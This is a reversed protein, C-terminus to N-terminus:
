EFEELLPTMAAVDNDGRVLTECHTLIKEADAFSRVWMVPVRFAELRRRQKSPRMGARPSSRFVVVAVVRKGSGDLIVNLRSARRSESSRARYDLVCRIGRELARAYFHATLQKASVRRPPVFEMTSNV